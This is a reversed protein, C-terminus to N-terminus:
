NIQQIPLADGWVLPTAGTERVIEVLNAVFRAHDGSSRLLAAPRPTREIVMRLVPGGVEKAWDAPPVYNEIAAVIMAGMETAAAQRWDWGTFAADEAMSRAATEPDASKLDYRGSSVHMQYTAGSQFYAPWVKEIPPPAVGDQKSRSHITDPCFGLVGNAQLCVLLDDSTDVYFHRYTRSKPQVVPFAGPYDPQVRVPHSPLRTIPSEEAYGVAPARRGLASHIAVMGPVSELSRRLGRRDAVRGFLGDGENFTQHTSGVTQDLLEVDGNAQRRKVDEVIARTPHVEFNRCGTQELFPVLEELNASWDPRGPLDYPYLDMNSVAIEIALGPTRLSM